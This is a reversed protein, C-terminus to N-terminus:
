SLKESKNSMGTSFWWLFVMAAAWQVTVAVLYAQHWRYFNDGTVAPISADILADLRPHLWFLVCLSAAMTLWSLALPKTQRAGPLLIVLALLGSLNMWQTM